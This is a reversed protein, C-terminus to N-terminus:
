KQITKLINQLDDRWLDRDTKKQLTNLENQKTDRHKELEQIKELSLSILPMKVLYDFSKAGGTGDEQDIDEKLDSSLKPYDREELLSIIYDRSKRNIDLTGNIYENIFRIKSNLLTLENQLQKVLYLRRKEYFEIRLDYFDLLIDTASKYKTLILDDSFLYMNNTTFSRSLRLTKELTNTKILADLDETKCFEVIFCIDSNEDRTKNQVDKLQVSPKKSKTTGGTGASKTTKPKTTNSDVLAELFEKYTTVWSGVPLETIKIQTDSVRQWKGTTIYSGPETERLDGNFHKFYPTMQLPEKDDLVRLLNAVIDTPNYPPIYTSYGTGIGECGNVLVMPLVPMFWEPEIQMGDDNLYKLLPSDRKDFISNTVDSLRTFIYRPSAADKGGLLRSGFNGDPYLLNLNNSGVFNQAM